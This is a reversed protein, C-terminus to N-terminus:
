NSANNSRSSRNNTNNAPQQDSSPHVPQNAGSSRHTDTPHNTTYTISVLPTPHNSAKHKLPDPSDNTESKHTAASFITATTTHKYTCDTSSPTPFHFSPHKFPRKALASAQIPITTPPYSTDTFPTNNTKYSSDNPSCSETNSINAATTELLPPRRNLQDPPPQRLEVSM